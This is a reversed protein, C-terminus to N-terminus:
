TLVRILESEIGVRATPQYVTIEKEVPKMTRKSKSKLELESLLEILEWEWEQGPEMGDRDCKYELVM